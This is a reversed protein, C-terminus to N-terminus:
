DSIQCFFSARRFVEESTVTIINGVGVHTSNWTTDSESEGSDRTWSYRNPTITATIDKGDQYVSATLTVSGQGNLMINGRVSTIDVYIVGQTGYTKVLGSNEWVGNKLIWIQYENPTVTAIYAYGNEGSTPIGLATDYFGYFHGDLSTVDSSLQKLKTWIAALGDEGVTMDHMMSNLKARVSLGSEWNSITQLNM